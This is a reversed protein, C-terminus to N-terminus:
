AAIERTKLLFYGLCTLSLVYVIGVVFQQGCLNAPINYGDAVFAVNNLKEYDPLLFATSWMFFMIVADCGKVVYNVWGLGLDLTLNMQTILRILAEVPGGGEVPGEGMFVSATLDFVKKSFFGMVITALTAMMAVPASLFTSFMIGFAIVIMMQMWIGLYGKTFNWAFPRDGKRFYVDAQAVGFYQGQDECRILVEIRGQDDVYEKFIDVERQQGDTGTVPLMRDIHKIFTSFEQSEFRMPNSQKDKSPDPNRLVLYGGFPKEINGKHTRFVRINMEIPFGDPFSDPTVGDFIWIAAALTGGEFYKRYTWEHGVSIPPGKQGTRDLFSLKGYHPVRALLFDQSPGFEYSSGQGEDIHHGEHSHGSHIETASYGYRDVTVRHRHGADLSTQGEKGIVGEPSNGEIDILDEVAIEHSHKLGRVVFGYSCVAMIVLLMTCIAGFGVIRGLVIEWAYVPKTVVTYITRSKIDGPLSFASLFLALAMILYSTSTLVFGVYLRAPDDSEADLFWGAFLLVLVFVAFAVLVRRRIAEKFSLWALAAIRRRSVRSLEAVGTFLVRATVYFAEGPGYRFALVLFGGFSFLLTIAVLAGLGRPIVMVLWELLSPIENELVM